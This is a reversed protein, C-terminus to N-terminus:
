RRNDGNQRMGGFRASSGRRNVPVIVMNRPARIPSVNRAASQVAPPAERRPQQAPVQGGGAPYKSPNQKGDSLVRFLDRVGAINEPTDRGSSRLDSIAVQEQLDMPLPGRLPSNPQPRESTATNQTPQSRPLQINNKARYEAARKQDELQSNIPDVPPLSPRPNSPNYATGQSRDPKPQAAGPPTIWSPAPRPPNAYPPVGSPNFPQPTAVPSERPPQAGGTTRPQNQDSTNMVPPQGGVGFSPRPNNAQPSNGFPNQWQTGSAFQSANGMARQVDPNQQSFPNFFTGNALQDNAQGLLQNPDFTVPGGLQGGSYQNLRDSLNGVFAERQTMADQWQMPNGGVGTASVQIPGPRQDIANYAMNGDFSQGFTPQGYQGTTPNYGQSVSSGPMTWSQAQANGGSAQNYAQGWIQNSPVQGSLDNQRPFDGGTRVTGGGQPPTWGGSPGQIPPVGYRAYPSTAASGSAPATQAYASMDPAKDSYTTNPATPRSYTKDGTRKGTNSDWIGHETISGDANNTVGTNWGYKTSERMNKQQTADFPNFIISTM